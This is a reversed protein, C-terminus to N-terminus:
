KTSALAKSFVKTTSEKKATKITSKVDELYTDSTMLKNCTNKSFQTIQEMQAISLLESKVKYGEIEIKYAVNLARRTYSDVEIKEDKTLNTNGLLQNILISKGTKKSPFLAKNENYLNSILNIIDRVNSQRQVGALKIKATLNSNQGNIKKFNENIQTMNNGKNYPNLEFSCTLDLQDLQDFELIIISFLHYLM